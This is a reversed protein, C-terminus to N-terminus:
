LSQSIPNWTGTIESFEDEDIDIGSDILEQHTQEPSIVGESSLNHTIDNMKVYFVNKSLEKVDFIHVGKKVIRELQGNSYFTQDTTSSFFVWSDYRNNFIIYLHRSYGDIFDPINFKAIPLSTEYYNKAFLKLM